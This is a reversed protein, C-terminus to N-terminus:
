PTPQHLQPGGFHIQGSHEPNLVMDLYVLKAVVICLIELDRFARVAGKCYITGVSKFQKVHANAMEVRQQLTLEAKDLDEVYADMNKRPPAYVKSPEGLYGPDGLAREGPHM